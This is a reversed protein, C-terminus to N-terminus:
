QRSYREFVQKLQREREPYLRVMESLLKDRDTVGPTLARFIESRTMGREYLYRFIQPYFWFSTGFAPISGGYREKYLVSEMFYGWSEGVECYGANELTGTGYAVKGERLFAAIIYRIYPSWYANGVQAYHSAHSLEHVTSSYIGAYSDQGKTGITIDPLFVKVLAAYEGLYQKITESEILAGHKLMVTSSCDLNKFIWIRLGGPPPLIDMDDKGCRQYYDYAANNVVSRRWLAQDGHPTVHFDIGEPGAKGLTSFSGPVLVLNFGISFGAVNDFVLRYRPNAAFSTPMEYYGDRDTYTHAFKVFCNCSVRVGAVGFPKGGSWSYDEITIRGKPTVRSAKTPPVYLDENGTLRFAEREVADWDVDELGARTVAENESLYCEDLLETRIGEPFVFDKPVVAYQWTIKEPELAPDHYYDGERLIQYDMPHDLLCIGTAKLRDFEEETEPLFRVYLDTAKIEVRGAKTPDVQELAAQINAVTYPDDLKEGLEIMGHYLEGAGQPREQPEDRDCALLLLAPLWLIKWNTKM